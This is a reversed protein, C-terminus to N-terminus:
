EAGYKGQKIECIIKQMEEIGDIILHM